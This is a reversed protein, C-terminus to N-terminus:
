VKKIGYPLQKYKRYTIYTLVSSIITGIIFAFMLPKIGTSTAMQPLTITETAQDFLAHVTVEIDAIAKDLQKQHNVTWTQGQVAYIWASLQGNREMLEKVRMEDGVMYAAAEMRNARKSFIKMYSEVNILKSSVTSKSAIKLSRIDDLLVSEYQLWPGHENQLLSDCALRLSSIYERWIISPKNNLVAEEAALLDQKMHKWGTATGYKMLKPENLQKKIQQMNSYVAQKNKEKSLDYLHSIAHDLKILRDYSQDFVTNGADQKYELDYASAVSAFLCIATLMMCLWLNFKKM